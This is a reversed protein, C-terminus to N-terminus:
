FFIHNVQVNEEDTVMIITYINRGCNNDVTKIKHEHAYINNVCINHRFGSVKKYNSLLFSIMFIQSAVQVINLFSVNKKTTTHTTKLCGM